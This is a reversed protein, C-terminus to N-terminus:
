SRRRHDLRELESQITASRGSASTDALQPFCGNVQAEGMPATEMQSEHAFPHQVPDYGNASTMQKSGDTPAGCVRPM